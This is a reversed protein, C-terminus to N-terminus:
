SFKAVLMALIIVVILITLKDMVEKSEEVLSPDDTYPTVVHTKRDVLSYKYEDMSCYDLLATPISILDFRVTQGEVNSINWVELNSDIIMTETAGPLIRNAFKGTQYIFALGPARSIHSGAQDYLNLVYCREELSTNKVPMSFKIEDAGFQETIFSSITGIIGSM